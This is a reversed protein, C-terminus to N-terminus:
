RLWSFGILATAEVINLNLNLLVTYKLLLRPIGVAIKEEPEGVFSKQAIITKGSCAVHEAGRVEKVHDMVVTCLDDRSLTVPNM